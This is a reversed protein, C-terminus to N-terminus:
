HNYQVDDLWPFRKGDLWAVQKNIEKSLLECRVRQFRLDGVLQANNWRMSKMKLLKCLM